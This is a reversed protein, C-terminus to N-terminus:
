VELWWIIVIMNDDEEFLCLFQAVLFLVSVSDSFYLFLNGGRDGDRKGGDSFNPWGGIVVTFLWRVDVATLLLEPRFRRVGGSYDGGSDIGAPSFSLRGLPFTFFLDRSHLLLDRV